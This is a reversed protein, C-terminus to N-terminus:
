VGEIRHKSLQALVSLNRTIKELRILEQEMTIKEAVDTSMLLEFAVSEYIAHVDDLLKTYEQM